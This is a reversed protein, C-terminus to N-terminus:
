MIEVFVASYKGPLKFTLKGDKVCVDAYDSGPYLIKASTIGSINVSWTDEDTDMRWVCLYAKESSKYGSCLWKDNPSGFGAPYFPVLESITERLGKYVKIADTVLKFQEDSLKMIEGSLHIRLPLSNVMNAIVGNLDDDSKPYSWIAAQEPLCATASNQAIYSMKKYDDCDTVSQISHLSLMAYDMRMGGSSCNEVVLHPYKNMIEEMWSLYARNHELLGDGFSDCGVETGIGGDINYDMKIYGVGYEGVVRDIVSTAYDRVQKNRFDLQYRGHDIVRKGHRMFFCEDPFKEALPCNIGMVEIELWLGPIMGKSKIYDFVKKIGGPFRWECPMWEGVTEWWTGDAYWGADMCYYESGTEAARDIVPIMKETTPDAWLCNMYDNFIVPLSKDTINERVIKRRYKTIEGIADDTNTGFAVAAPVGVFSEGPKLEKYWLNELETPGSLKLYLKDDIIGTEWHWAGNNEIQWVICFPSATDELIGMPLFEKASWTGSNSVSIRNTTSVSLGRRELTAKKWEVEYKWSNHPIYLETENLIDKGESHNIGLLSFSSLYEIGVNASSINTVTNWARVASIGSYLQYHSVLEVDEDCLTIELKKGLETEYIKHEKYRLSATGSSGVHRSGHHNDQNRGTIHVDAISFNKKDAGDFKGDYAKASFNVLSVRKDDDIEFALNLNNEKLELLM